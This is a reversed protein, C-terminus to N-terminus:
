LSVNGVGELIDTAIEFFTLLFGELAHFVDPLFVAMVVILAALGIAQMM